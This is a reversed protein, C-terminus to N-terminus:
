SPMSRRRALGAPIEAGARQDQGPNRGADTGAGAELSRGIGPTPMSPMPAWFQWNGANGGPGKPLEVVDWNFDVTRIGPTAWRRNQFMGVKGARFPPESDEGYPVAM